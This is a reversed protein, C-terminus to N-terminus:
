LRKHNGQAATGRSPQNICGTLHSAIEKPAHFFSCSYRWALVIYRQCGGAERLDISVGEDSNSIGGITRASGLLSELALSKFYSVAEQLGLPEPRIDLSITM